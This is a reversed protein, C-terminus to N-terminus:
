FVVDEDKGDALLVGGKGPGASGNLAGPQLLGAAAAKEQAARSRLPVVFTLQTCQLLQAAYLM